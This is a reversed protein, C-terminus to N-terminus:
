VYEQEQKFKIVFKLQEQFKPSDFEKNKYLELNTKLMIDHYEQRITECFFDMTVGDGDSAEFMELDRAIKQCELHSKWSYVDGGSKHASKLYMEGQSILIGCYDCCHHKKAKTLRDSSLTEM